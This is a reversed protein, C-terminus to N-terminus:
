QDKGETPTEAKRTEVAIYQKREPIPPPGPPAKTPLIKGSCVKMLQEAEAAASLKLEKRIKRERRLEYSDMSLSYGALACALMLLAELLSLNGISEMM